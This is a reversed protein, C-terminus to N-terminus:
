IIMLYGLDDFWEWCDGFRGCDQGEGSVVLEGSHDSIGGVEGDRAASWCTSLRLTYLISHLRKMWTLNPANCGRSIDPCYVLIFDIHVPNELCLWYCAISTNFIYTCVNLFYFWDCSEAKIISQTFVSCFTFLIKFLVSCHFAARQLFFTFACINSSIGPHSVYRCTGMALGKIIITYLEWLFMKILLQWLNELTVPKACTVLSWVYVLLSFTGFM